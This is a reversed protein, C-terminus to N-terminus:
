EIVVYNWHTEVAAAFAVVCELLFQTTSLERGGAQRVAVAIYAQGNAPTILVKPAQAFAKNFTVTLQTGAVWAASGTTLIIKGRTDNSGSELTATAGTGANAHVAVTPATQQSVRIHGDIQFVGTVTGTSAGRFRNGTNSDYDECTVRGLLARVSAIIDVAATDRTDQLHLQSNATTVIGGNSWVGWTNSIVSGVVYDVRINPSAPNAASSFFVGNCQFKTQSNAAPTGTIYITGNGAAANDECHCGDLTIDSEAATSYLAEEANSELVVGPGAYFDVVRGILNIGRKTALGVYSAAGSIRTSTCFGTAPRHYDFYNSKINCNYFDLEQVSELSVGYGNVATFGDIWLNNFRGFAVYNAATGLKLGGLNEVRGQIRFNWLSINEVSSSSAVAIAVAAASTMKIVSGLGVGAMSFNNANITLGAVLFTGVPIRIPYSGAVAATITAQFNTTDNTVGDGKCGFWKPNLEVIGIRRWRGISNSPEIITGNNDADSSAPLYEFLGEGGDGVTNAGLVWAVYGAPWVTADLLRLLAYNEVFTGPGGPPGMPGVLSPFMGGYNEPACPNFPTCNSSPPQCTGCSM